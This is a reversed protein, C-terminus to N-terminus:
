GLISEEAVWFNENAAQGVMAHYKRDFKQLEVWIARAIVYGKAQLSLWFHYRKMLETEDVKVEGDETTITVDSFEKGNYEAVHTALSLAELQAQFTDPAAIQGSDHLGQLNKVVWNYEWVNNNRFKGKAKSNLTNFERIYRRDYVLADLFEEKDSPTITIPSSVWRENGTDPDPNILTPKGMPDIDSNTSTDTIVGKEIDLEGDDQAVTGSSIRIDVPGGSALQERAEEATEAVAFERAARKMEEMSNSM